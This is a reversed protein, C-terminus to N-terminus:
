LEVKEWANSRASLRVADLVKMNAWSDELPIAQPGMKRVAKSFLEAQIRYQNCPAITEIDPPVGALQGGHDVLLRTSQDAPAAYPMEIEVRAKTGFVMARQYLAMQTSCVFSSQADPFDLIVSDLRDTGFDPDYDMRALVRTPEADFVFRSTTIPYCGLDYLAGGGFASINRINKPDRNMNAFISQMACLTGIDGSRAVERVRLWQPHTRVMFAEQILVGTRDRVDILRKADAATLAIPKECLVHKGAEAARTTWELHMHNPLPIYVVEVEPDALLAEYSGYARPIGLAAAAADARAQDRSALAVMTCLPNDRLPPLARGRGINADGLIGWRVKEL